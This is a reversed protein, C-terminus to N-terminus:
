KKEALLLKAKEFEEVRGIDIWDEHIPFMNVMLGEDISKQILEPMDLKEQVVVAKVINANLLYIGANVFFKHLPKEVITRVRSGVSQVVGFPVQHEYERVCMTIDSSHSNHFELLSHYNLSTLLDGNVMFMPADIDDHPLLSLAGGTGLPEDEHIYRINVGYNSGDGFYNKIVDPLYHTSIYFKYFGADIFAQIIQELIPKTGIKLMPKPCKETLPRLRTGFGGAMIFVPNDYKEKRVLETWSHLGVLVGENTVVPLHLLDKEELLSLVRGQSWSENASYPATNMVELVSVSLSKQAILARRIDGDTLIGKLTFANDVVLAVRLHARDLTEIAEGLSANISVIAEKWSKM